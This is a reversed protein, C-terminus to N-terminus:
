KKNKRREVFYFCLILIYVLAICVLGFVWWTIWAVGDVPGQAFYMGNGWATRGSHIYDLYNNGEAWLASIGFFILFQWMHKLAPKVERTALIIVPV